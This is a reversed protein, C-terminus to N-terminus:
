VMPNALKNVTKAIHVLVAFMLVKLLNKACKIVERKRNLVLCCECVKVESHHCSYQCEENKEFIAKKNRRLIM